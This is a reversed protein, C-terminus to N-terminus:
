ISESVVVQAYKILEGNHKFGQEIVELIVNDEVTYDEIVAVIKQTQPDCEKGIYAVPLLDIEQLIEKYIEQITKYATIFSGFQTNFKLLNIYNPTPMGDLLDISNTIFKYMDIFVKTNKVESNNSKELKQVVKNLKKFEGNIKVLEEAVSQEEKLPAFGEKSLKEIEDDDLNDIINCIDIKLEERTM